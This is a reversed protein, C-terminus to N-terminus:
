LCFRGRGAIRVIERELAAAQEDGTESFGSTFVQAGRVGKALCDELVAPVFPAPVMIAALDVREPIDRVTPYAKLGLIEGGEPHVPHIRGKFGFDLLARLFLSGFKREDRSVGVVALTRPYFIPRLESLWDM